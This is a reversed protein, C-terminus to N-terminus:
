LLVLFFEELMITTFTSGIFETNEVSTLFPRAAGREPWFPQRGERFFSGELRGRFPGFFTLLLLLLVKVFFIKEFVNPDIQGECSLLQPSCQLV